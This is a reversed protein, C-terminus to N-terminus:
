SLRLFPADARFVKTGVAKGFKIELKGDKRAVIKGVGWEPKGTHEARTAEAVATAIVAAPFVLTECLAALAPRARLAVTAQGLDLRALRRAGLGRALEAIAADDITMRVLALEDLQALWGRNALLAATDQGAFAGDVRLARLAPVRARDLAGLVALVDAAYPGPVLELRALTPHAFAGLEVRGHLELARLRPLTEALAALPAGAAETLPALELRTITAPALGRLATLVEPGDRLGALEVRLERVFALSPHRWTAATEDVRAGTRAHLELRRVFGPSWHARDRADLRPALQGLLDDRRRVLEGTDANISARALALMTTILEGRPDGRAGLEDALVALTEPDDPDAALQASLAESAFSAPAVEVATAAAFRARKDAALADLRAAIAAELAARDPVLDAADGLARLAPRVVLPVATVACSLHHFRDIPDRLDGHVFVEAVRLQDKAIVMGCTACKSRGSKAREIRHQERVDRERRIAPAIDEVPAPPPAAAAARGREREEALLRVDGDVLRRPAQLMPGLQAGAPLGKGSAFVFRGRLHTIDAIPLTNASAVWGEGDFRPAVLAAVLWLREGPRVTVLWLTGAGDENLPALAKNASAYREIALVDGVGPPAGEVDEFQAKSIIALVDGM